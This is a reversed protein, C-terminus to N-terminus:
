KTRKRRLLFFAIAGVPLAMMLITQLSFKPKKAEEQTQQLRAAALAAKQQAEALKQQAQVQKTQMAQTFIATGTQLATGIAPTLMGWNFNLGAMEQDDPFYNEWEQIQEEHEFPILEGREQILPPPTYYSQENSQFAQPTAALSQYSKINKKFKKLTKKINKKSKKLAKKGKSLWSSDLNGLDVYM